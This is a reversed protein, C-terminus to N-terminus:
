PYIVVIDDIRRNSGTNETFNSTLFSVDSNGILNRSTIGNPIMRPASILEVKASLSPLFATNSYVLKSPAIKIIHDAVASDAASM